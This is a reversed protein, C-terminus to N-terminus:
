IRELPCDVEVSGQDTCENIEGRFRAYKGVKQFAICQPLVENPIDAVGIGRSLKARDSQNRSTGLSRGGYGLTISM